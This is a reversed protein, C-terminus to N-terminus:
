LLFGDPIESSTFFLGDELDPATRAVNERSESFFILMEERSVGSNLQGTWFALGPDDAERGLVNLYLRDVFARNGLNAGYLDEFERSEVFAEAIAERGLGDRRADLWFLMGGDAERDFAASYLRYVFGTDSGPVDILLLGDPFRAQEVGTLTDVALTERDVLRMSGDASGLFFFDGSFETFEATDIGQLGIVIDAGRLPQFTDDFQTGILRDDGFTGRITQGPVRALSTPGDTEFVFSDDAGHTM